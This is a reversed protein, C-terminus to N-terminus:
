ENATAKRWEELKIAMEVYEGSLVYEEGYYLHWYDTNYLIERVKYNMGVRGIVEYLRDNLEVWDGMISTCLHKDVQRQLSKYFNFPSESVYKELNKRVNENGELTVAKINSVQLTEARMNGIAYTQEM